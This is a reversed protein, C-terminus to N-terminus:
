LVHVGLSQVRGIDANQRRIVGIFRQVCLLLRLDGTRVAELRQEAPEAARGRRQRVCLGANMDVADAAPVMLFDAVM